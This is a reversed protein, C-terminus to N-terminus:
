GIGWNVVNKWDEPKEISIYTGTEGDGQWKYWYEERDFGGYLYDVAIIEIVAWTYCYEFVDGINEEVIEKAKELSSFVGVCRTDTKMYEKGTRGIAPTERITTVTYLKM